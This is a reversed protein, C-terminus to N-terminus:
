GLAVMGGGISTSPASIACTANGKISIMTGGISNSVGAKFTSNLKGECTLNMKATLNTNMTAAITCNMKAAVDFNMKSEFKTNMKSATNLNKAADIKVNGKSSMTIDKTADVKIAGKCSISIDGDVSLKYNGKVSVDMNGDSITISMNGKKLTITENGEDLSITLNGKKLSQVYNGENMTLTKNGNSLTQTHNGETITLVKDGKTLTTEYNAPNDGEAKIAEIRNGKVLTLTDNAETITTTRSNIIEINMDKQAHVYIEEADKKDEFRLENFGQEEKSSVSKIASKTADKDNYPPVHKDNYVCGVIIPRDPDGNEFNVVVEQGIRPTYLGGWSNGAWIQAVRVWCSSNEDLKGDRDWYFHVKVRRSADTHIEEGKPGTVIATQSGFIAPKKTVRRPRIIVSSEVASFRNEYIGSKRIDYKHVVNCTIYQKNFAKSPHNELKFKYGPTMRSIKSHGVLTTTNQELEQLRSKVIDNGDKVKQYNGPYEFVGHKSQKGIIQVLLNTMSTTHEYDKTAYAGSCYSDTLKVSNVTNSGALGDIYPAFFAKSDKEMDLYGSTSDGLVMTHKGSAHQFFYYIGSEELLRSVFDFDSENYQVCYPRVMKGGSAKNIIEISSDGLVAKIIDAASKEQFVKCTKNLTLLWLKPRMEIIYHTLPYNKEISTLGQTCKTVIGNVFRSEKDSLAIELTANSGIVSAVDVNDKATLINIHFVFLESVAEHGSFSCVIADDGISSKLKCSLNKQAVAIIDSFQQLDEGIDFEDILTM